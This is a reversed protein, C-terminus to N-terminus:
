EWPIDERPSDSQIIPIKRREKEEYLDALYKEFEAAQRKSGCNGVQAEMICIAQDLEDDSYEVLFEKRSLFSTESEEELLSLQETCGPQLPTWAPEKKERHKLDKVPEVESVGADYLVRYLVYPKAEFGTVKSIDGLAGTLPLWSNTFIGPTSCFWTGLGLGQADVICLPREPSRWLYVAKEPTNLYAFAFDASASIFETVNEIATVINIDANQMKAIARFVVESDVSPERIGFEAAVKDKEGVIGNHIGFCWGRNVRVGFPHANRDNIAGETAFRNHGLAVNYKKEFLFITYGKAVFETGSLAKKNFFCQDGSHIVLGTSHEGRVEDAIALAQLLLSTKWSSNGAFGFIGCM